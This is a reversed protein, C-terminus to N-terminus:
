VQGKHLSDMTFIMHRDNWNINGDTIKFKKFEVVDLYRDYDPHAFRDLFPKFDIERRLGDSFVVELRHGDLHRASVVTISDTM